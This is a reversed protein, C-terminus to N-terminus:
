ALIIQVNELFFQIILIHNLSSGFTKILQVATEMFNSFYVMIAKLCLSIYGFGM